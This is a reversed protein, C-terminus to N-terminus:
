VFYSVSRTREGLMTSSGCLREIRGVWYTGTERLSFEHWRESADEFLSSISLLRVLIGRVLEYKM